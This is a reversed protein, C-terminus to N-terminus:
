FDLKKKLFTNIFNIYDSLTPLINHDVGIFVELETAMDCHHSDIVIIYMTGQLNSEYTVKM